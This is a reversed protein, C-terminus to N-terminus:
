TKVVREPENNEIFYFESLEQKKTKQELVPMLGNRICHANIIIPSQEAQRFIKTLSFTQVVGSSIIDALVNGPGVSPLQFIDGVLILVGNVPVAKVLSYMLLTDVMSAEDVIVVDADLPNDQNRGFIEADPDYLLMRHLTSAKKDTVQSLRRAARGTPAGLIVRRHLKGFVACVARILTTKGTGPGGTIVTVRHGFVQRVITSQEESLKLALRNLVEIAITDDDLGYDPVAISLMAKIKLAIGTEAQYMKRTYVASGQVGTNMNETSNELCGTSKEMYDARKELHESSAEIYRTRKELVIERREHLDRLAPEVSRSDAGTLRICRQILDNEECFVHGDAENKLLLYIISAKIREPDKLDTGTKLAIADAVEFGAEPIDRSVQYPRSKLVKLADKGYYSIIASAHSIGTGHEQLFQMVKRVAHHQDWARSITTMKAKGIGDIECLRHPENEIIDLSQEKFHDVIKRAIVEGIGKIMGSGLYKKIGGVTAPLNVEFTDVKFQEGYKAHSVWRGCLSLMEGEVVGALHGVITVPEKIDHIKLRAITYHNDENKYTIRQLTGKITPM